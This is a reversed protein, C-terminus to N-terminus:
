GGFIKEANATTIRAVEEKSIAMIDALKEAIYKIYSSENRKGRFPAPTLYPADTELVVHDLGIQKIVEPLKSNKFTVVGGIGMYFGLDIIQKASEYSDTFCHFIGKLNGRQHERVVGITQEMSERSHIVIPLDYQLAWEIQRNMAVYQDKEFSRDWYFDLGIEGIAAFKRSLLSQEVLKLEQEFNEKVSCPHLGTMAVCRGPYSSELGLLAKTTESDVAPLYFKKVGEYDARQLIAAIDEAFDELYLHCHTDIFIM